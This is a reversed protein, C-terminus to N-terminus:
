AFRPCQFLCYGRGCSNVSVPLKKAQDEASAVTIFEKTRDLQHASAEGSDKKECGITTMAILTLACLLGFTAKVTKM